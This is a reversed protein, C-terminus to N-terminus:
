KGDLSYSMGGTVVLLTVHSIAERDWTYEDLHNGVSSTPDPPSYLEGGEVYGGRLVTCQSNCQFKQRTRVWICVPTYLFGEAIM